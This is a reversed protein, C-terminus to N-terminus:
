NFSVFISLCEPLNEINYFSDTIRQSVSVNRRMNQYAYIYAFRSSIFKEIRRLFVLKTQWFSHSTIEIFVCVSFIYIIFNRIDAIPTSIQM